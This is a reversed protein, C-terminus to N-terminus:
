FEMQAVAEARAYVKGLLVVTEYDLIYTHVYITAAFAAM